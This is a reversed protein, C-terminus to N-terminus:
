VSEGLADRITPIASRSVPLVKGMHTELKPNGNEYYLRKVESESIWHSRHIQLGQSSVENIAQTFPMRVIHEGSRTTVITYNKSASLMSIGEFREIPKLKSQPANKGFSESKGPLNREIDKMASAYIDKTLFYFFVWAGMTGFLPGSFFLYLKQRATILDPAWDFTMAVIYAALATTLVPFVIFAWFLYRLNSVCLVALPILFVGAFLNLSFYILGILLFVNLPTMYDFSGHAMHMQVMIAISFASLYGFTSPTLYFKLNAQLLRFYRM